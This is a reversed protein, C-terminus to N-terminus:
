NEKDLGLDTIPLLWKTIREEEEILTAGQLYPPPGADETAEPPLDPLERAETLARRIDKIPRPGVEAERGQLRALMIRADYAAGSDGYLTLLQNLYREAAQPRYHAPRLYFEALYLLYGALRDEAQRTLQQAQATGPHDPHRQQFRVAAERAELALAQDLRGQRAKRFMTDAAQLQAQVASDTGAFRRQIQRYTILAADYRGLAKQLEALRLMDAPANPGAPAVELILEYLKIADERGDGWRRAEGAAYAEAIFRLNATVDPLPAYGPYQRLLEEYLSWARQHQGAKLRCDAENRLALAKNVTKDSRSRLLAYMDAAAEFNGSATEAEAVALPKLDPRLFRPVTWKEEPEWSSSGAGACAPLAICACVIASWILHTRM